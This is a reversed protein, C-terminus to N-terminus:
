QQLAITIRKNFGRLGGSKDNAVDIEVVDQIGHHYFGVEWFEGNEALFIWQYEAQPDQVLGYLTAGRQDLVGILGQIPELTPPNADIQEHLKTGVEMATTPETLSSEGEDIIEDIQDLDDIIPQEEVLADNMVADGFSGVQPEPQSDDAIFEHDPKSDENPPLLTDQSM